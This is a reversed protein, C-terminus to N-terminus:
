ITKWTYYIITGFLLMLTRIIINLDIYKDIVSTSTESASDFFGAKYIKRNLLHRTQYYIGLHWFPYCMSLALTTTADTLFYVIFFWSCRIFVLPVHMLQKEKRSYKPSIYHWFFGELIAIVIFVIANAIYMILVNRRYISLSRNNPKNGM